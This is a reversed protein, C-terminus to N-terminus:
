ATVSTIVAVVLAVLSAAVTAYAVRLAGAASKAQDRQQRERVGAGLLALKLEPALKAFDDFGPWNAPELMDAIGRDLQEDELEFPFGIPVGPV